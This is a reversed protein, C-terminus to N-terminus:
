EIKEMEYGSYTLVEKGNSNKVSITDGKGRGLGSVIAETDNIVTLALKQKFEMHAAPIGNNEFVLFDDELKLEPKELMSSHELDDNLIKYKGLRNKWAPSIKETFPLIKSGWLLVTGGSKIYLLKDNGVTKFKMLLSGPNITFLGFLKVSARQWENERDPLMFKAGTTLKSFVKGDEVYVDLLNGNQYTGEYSKMDVPKAQGKSSWSKKYGVKTELSIELSRKAVSHVLPASTITNSVAIVGLKQRPLIALMSHFLFTDGGHEVSLISNGLDFTNLFFGLGIQFEDDYPNGGNQTKYMEELTTEKLFTTNGVKGNNLFMQIFKSLDNASSNLFGAPLDRVKAEKVESRFILGGYGKSFDLKKNANIEYFSHNMGLPELVKQTVVNAYTDNAVKEVIRGLISHGLNSYSFLKEPPYSVYEGNVDSVLKELSDTKDQAFFGKLRESPLGSHHTLISRITIPKSKEFRTQLKLEPLYKSIDTDLNLKGEEVLKMVVVLNIIKSVSAVRFITDPTVQIGSAKDSFGFGKSFLVEKDSVVNVGLGIISAEKMQTPIYYNLYEKLYTYDDKPITKPKQPLSTCSTFAFTFTLLSLVILKTVSYEVRQNKM